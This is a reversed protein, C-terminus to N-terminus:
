TGSMEIWVKTILRDAEQLLVIAAPAREVTRDQQTDNGMVAIAQLLGFASGTSTHVVCARQGCAWLNLLLL